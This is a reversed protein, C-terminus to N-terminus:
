DRDGGGPVTGYGVSVNGDGAGEGDDDLAHDVIALRQLAVFDVIEADPQLYSKKM